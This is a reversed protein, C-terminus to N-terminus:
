VEDRRLRRAYLLALIGVFVAAAGGAAPGFVEVGTSALGSSGAGSGTASGSGGDAPPVPDAPPPDAPALVPVVKIEFGETPYMPNTLKEKSEVLKWPGYVVPTYWGRPLGLFRAAGDADTTAKAVVPGAEWEAIAFQLNPITEGPDVRNNGNFDQYVVGDLDGFKGTVKMHVFVNPFGMLYKEDNGFDCALYVVGQDQSAQNITGHARFVRTEGAALTAGPGDYGLEGWHAQDDMAELHADSGYRDCGVKVGSLTKPGRNTLTVKVGVTDGPQYSQAEFEAEAILTEFLPRKARITLNASNPSGDVIVHDIYEFFWGKAESTPAYLGYRMAPLDRFEFHGSADTWAKKITGDLFLKIQIEAVGEGADFVNNDNDDAYVVGGATGKVASPVVPVTVVFENDEITLEDPNEVFVRLQPDTEGRSSVRAELVFEESAGPEITGGPAPFPEGSYFVNFQRWGASQASVDSGSSVGRANGLVRKAVGEGKNTVTVKIPIDQGIVFPGPEVSATLKLDPKAEGAVPQEPDSPAPTESSPTPEAITPTPAESTASPPVPQALAPAAALGGVILLVAAASLARSLPTFL